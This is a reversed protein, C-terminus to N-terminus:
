GGCFAQRSTPGGRAFRWTVEILNSLQALDIPKVLYRDIAVGESQWHAQEKSNESLAVLVTADLEDTCRISNALDIGDMDPLALDILVVEPRRRVTKILGSLGGHATYSDHGAMRLEDRLLGALHRESVVLIRLIVSASLRPNSNPLWSSSWKV